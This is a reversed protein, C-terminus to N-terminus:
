CTMEERNGFHDTLPNAPEKQITMQVQCVRSQDSVLNKGKGGAHFPIKKKM